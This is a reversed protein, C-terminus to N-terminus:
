ISPDEHLNEKQLVYDSTMSFMKDAIRKTGYYAVPLLLLYAM